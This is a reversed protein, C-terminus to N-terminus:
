KKESKTVPGIFNMTDKALKTSDVETVGFSDFPRHLIANRAHDDSRMGYGQLFGEPSNMKVYCDTYIEHKGQDWYLTDTNIVQQKPINHIVVSDFAQWVETGTGNKRTIHRATKSTITTEVAGDERYGYVMFGEPFVESSATDTEFRQMVPAEIRMKPHGNVTQVAFMSDVVQLPVSNIDLEEASPIKSKCSFVVLAVAFAIAM